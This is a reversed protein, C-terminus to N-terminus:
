TDTQAEVVKQLLRFPPKPPKIGVRRSAAGDRPARQLPLPRGDNQRSSTQDTPEPYNTPRRRAQNETTTQKNTEKKKLILQLLNLVNLCSFPTKHTHINTKQKDARERTQANSRFIGAWRLTTTRVDVDRVMTFSRRNRTTKLPFIIIALLRPPMANGM